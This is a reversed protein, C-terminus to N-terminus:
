QSMCYLILKVMVGGMVGTLVYDAGGWARRVVQETVSKRQRAKLRLM